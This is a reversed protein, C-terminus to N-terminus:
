LDLLSNRDDFESSVTMLLKAVDEKVAQNGFHVLNFLMQLHHKAFIGPSLDLLKQVVQLARSITPVDPVLSPIAMKLIQLKEKAVRTQLVKQTETDSVTKNLLHYVIQLGIRAISPDQDRLSNFVLDLLEVNDKQFAVSVETADLLLLFEYVSKRVIEQVDQSRRILM